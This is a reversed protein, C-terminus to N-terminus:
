FKAANGKRISKVMGDFAPENGTITAAPGTCKFFVLGEPAEIIAGILRYNPKKGQSQMAPGAPALYTGNAKVWHVTMGAVTQVSTKPEPAGEFQSGWRKINEQATGGQGKGFYFVGCEGADTGKGPVTYTAVRMARAPQETWGTPITWEIGASTVGQAALLVRSAAAFAVAALSLSISILIRHAPRTRTTM